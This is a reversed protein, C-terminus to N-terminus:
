VNGPTLGHVILLIGLIASFVCIANKRGFNDSYNGGVISGIMYGIFTSGTILTNKWADNCVLNLDTVTTEWKSGFVNTFNSL